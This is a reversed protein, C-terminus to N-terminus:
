DQPTKLATLAERDTYRLSVTVNMGDTTFTDLPTDTLATLHLIGIPTHPLYPEVIRGTTRDIRPPGLVALWNCIAPLYHVGIGGQYVALNLAAQEILKHQTRQLADTLITQWRAWIPSQAHIGLVGSNLLPLSSLKAGVEPGFALENCEKANNGASGLGFLTGYSRDIEPVIAFGYKTAAEILLEVASWEQIWTDADLWLYVAYGPFHRPLFPRATM